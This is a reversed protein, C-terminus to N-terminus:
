SAHGRLERYLDLYKRAVDGIACTERCRRYAAEGLARRLAPDGSLDRLAAGLAAVDGAPVILGASGRLYTGPPPEAAQEPGLLDVNGGVFTAVCACGAAMAELLANSMGEATSALVFVDADRLLASPDEVEGLFEVSGAAMAELRQRHPGDGAVRLRGPRGVATWAQLIDEVRKEARLGGLYLITVREHEIRAPPLPGVAVGNPIRVVQDRRYGAALCEAEARANVAVIRTLLRRTVARQIGVGGQAAMRLDSTSGTSSIRALCPVGRRWGAVAAVFAPYLVQHVHIVEFRRAERLLARLLSAMFLWRRVRLLSRPWAAGIRRVPVGDLVAESPWSSDWRGTWVEVSAGQGRLEAALRRAQTEAGGVIPWFQAVLMLVRPAVDSV